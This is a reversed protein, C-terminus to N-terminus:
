AEWSLSEQVPRVPRRDRHGEVTAAVRSAAAAMDEHEWVVLVEYGM